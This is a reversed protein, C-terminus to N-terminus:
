LAFDEFHIHRSPVGAARLGFDAEAVLPTPGCLYVDYDAIEPFRERLSKPDFVGRHESRSGIIYQVTDGRHEAIADLEDRFVVDEVTSARYLLTIDGPEGRLREFLLRLPTIGIGGAILLVKRRTRSQETFAGYPGEVVVRTGAPITRVRASDDGLAKVTLRVSSTDIGSVSYPHARHWWGRALFRVTVFQGPLLEFRHLDEGHLHLSTVNATEVVHAGLEFHHRRTNRVPNGFRHWLVAAVVLSYLLAWYYTTFRHHDFDSGVQVIHPFSLVIMAYSLLHVFFWTERSVSRRAVRASTAAVVVLLVTAVSALLVSTHRANLDILEAVTGRGDGAAWGVTTAIVHVLLCWVLSFGTWRHWRVLRDMGFRGDLGPVRAILLIQVLAAFTGWLAAIQGVSTWVTAVSSDAPWGGHQMWLGTVAAINGVLLAALVLPGMRRRTMRACDAASM